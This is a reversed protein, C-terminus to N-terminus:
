AARTSRARPVLGEVPKVRASTTKAARRRARRARRGACGSRSSRSAPTASPARRTVESTCGARRWRPGARRQRATARRSSRSRRSRARTRRPGAATGRRAAARAASAGRAPERGRARSSAIAPRASPSRRSSSLAPATRSGTRGRRADGALERRRPRTPPGRQQDDRREARDGASHDRVAARVADLALLELPEGVDAHQQERRQQHGGDAQEAVGRRADADILQGM